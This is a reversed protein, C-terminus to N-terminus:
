HGFLSRGERGKRIRNQRGEIEDVHAIAKRLAIMEPQHDLVTTPAKLIARVVEALSLYGLLREAQRAIMNDRRDLQGRLVIEQSPWPNGGRKPSPSAM